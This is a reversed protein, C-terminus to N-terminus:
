RIEARSNAPARRHAKPSRTKAPEAPASPPLATGSRSKVLSIDASNINGDSNLDSRYNGTVVPQGSQSKVQTIDASNVNGDGTSDGVLVNMYATQDGITAHAADQAGHLTVALRQGSTVGTLNVTVQNLNPGVQTSSASGSGQTVSAAGAFSLNSGFTYILTYSNDTGGSRPEVPASGANTSLALDFPGASGHIRRSVVGTPFVGCISNFNVVYSNAFSLSDPMQDYLATAGVGINAPDTSQAVGSVFGSITSGPTLGLDSAKVIITIKGAPGNYNSGPEAPKQSAPKVFRGDVTGGNNPSPAYSEFVPTSPNTFAMHVGRYHVASTDNPVAPDPGPIQMAVYWASGPTGTSTPNPDTSVTFVLRPIGDNQFPQALQFLLLDSGPPAPTSTFNIITASTDGAPDVLETLGPLVCASALPPLPAITLHIENSQVGIGISNVAKVYYYYDTVNPQASTDEFKPLTNQTTALLQENGSATGRWIQYHIIDNGGNDPVKWDLHSGLQDRTGSLCPAKPAKANAPTDTQNDFASFLSRGGIQRAVRMHATYSEKSPDGVCNSVCGDDYGFLVRGKEDATVENFDLLNRNTNSGGGQWIGGVGQVPDNPTANVTTWTNGSDYTTAIFLYWVGPFAPGEYDGPRDTGVFGVAARSDDGAVAEPFVANMIGHSTGLDRDKTWTVHGTSDKTGVQVHIHGQKPAQPDANPEDRVYSFYITNNKGIAVSPDSGHTQTQTNPVINEIWNVGADISVVLGANGSCDRVPLYVTGDPGVHVHGHIGGCPDGNNGTYPLISPGYSAGLVDSRQCGAAGVPFTQACYYVARGHTVPNAPDGLGLPLNYPAINPYPGSGITEHDSSANPPSASLPNWTDGDDDSFGYVGNTGVTSNSAFTRGTVQDTWLIPDLGAITTINTVDEWLGECCEPKAQALREPATLRWIPGSNMLMMRGTAPHYGINFEGNGVEATSGAPAYFNQYRPNGPVTPDPLGFGPFGASGGGGSLLEIRVHVTEHTPQFPVIKISYQSSGDVLPSITAVEPNSGGASQYDAQQSGNLTAVNGKYIYLDYDSQGAGIDTWYLTVKVSANPNAAAYGAPLNVTLLYQDCPFTTSDCRPGQDVQGLGLPSQNPVNFPGADYNLTANQPTLTGSSPTSAFSFWGLSVAFASLAVAGALRLRIFAKRFPNQTQM